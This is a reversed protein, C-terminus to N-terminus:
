SLGACGAFYESRSAFPPGKASFLRPAIICESDLWAKVSGGESDNHGTEGSGPRPSTKSAALLLLAIAGLTQSGGVRDKASNLITQVTDSGLKRNPKIELGEVNGQSPVRPAATSDETRNEETWYVGPTATGRGIVPSFRRHEDSTTQRVLDLCPSTENVRGENNSINTASARNHIFFAAEGDVEQQYQQHATRTANDYEM